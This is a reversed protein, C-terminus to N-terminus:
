IGKNNTIQIFVNLLNHPSKTFIVHPPAGPPTRGYNIIVFALHPM